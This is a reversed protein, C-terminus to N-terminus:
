PSRPIPSYAIAYLRAATAAADATELTLLNDGRFLAQAPVLFRLRTREPGITGEGLAHGNVSVRLPADRVASMALTLEMPAPTYCPLVLTARDSQMLAESTLYQPANGWGDRLFVPQLLEYGPINPTM